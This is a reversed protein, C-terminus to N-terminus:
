WPPQVSGTRQGDPLSRHLARHIPHGSAPGSTGKRSDLPPCHSYHLYQLSDPHSCHDIEDHLPIHLSISKQPSPFFHILQPFVGLPHPTYIDSLTILIKQDLSRHHLVFSVYVMQQFPVSQYARRKMYIGTSLETETVALLASRSGYFLSESTIVSYSDKMLVQEVHAGQLYAYLLM